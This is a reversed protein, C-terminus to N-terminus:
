IRVRWRKNLEIMDQCIQMLHLEKDLEVRKREDRYERIKEATPRVKPPRRRAKPRITPIYNPPTKM